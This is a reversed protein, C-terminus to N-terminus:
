ALAFGLLGCATPGRDGTANGFPDATPAAIVAIDIHVEGDQIAQWRGGHSRLVAMGRMKGATCYDGLPGNMSGEIHHLVGSELHGIQPEHVPFSASPFWVLDKVGLEAAAAFVANAVFDGNRLHHHTSITMGDRLGARQLAAKIDQAVKNGDAPYDSCTRIPPAAKRGSPRFKGVGQFPVAEAGNIVAPVMRGAANQVLKTM